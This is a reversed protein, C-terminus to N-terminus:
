ELNFHLTRTIWMRNVIFNPVQTILVIYIYVRWALKSIFHKWKECWNSFFDNRYLVEILDCRTRLDSVIKLKKLVLSPQFLYKKLSWIFVKKLFFYTIYFFGHLANLEIHELNFIPAFSNELSSRALYITITWSKTLFTIM